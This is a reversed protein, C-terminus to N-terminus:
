FDCSAYWGQLQMHSRQAEIGVLCESLNAFFRIVDARTLTRQLVPKGQASKALDISITTIAKM